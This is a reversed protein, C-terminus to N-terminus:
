EFRIGTWQYNKTKTKILAQVAQRDDLNLYDPTNYVQQLVSTEPEYVWQMFPIDLGPFNPNEEVFFSSSAPTILADTNLRNWSPSYFELRSDCVSACVTHILCYLQSDNIMKLVIIQLSGTGTNLRLYDPTLKELVLVDDFSNRLEAPLGAQYLDVLDMRTYTNLDVFLSEPLSIFVEKATQAQLSLAFCCTILPLILKLKRNVMKNNVM